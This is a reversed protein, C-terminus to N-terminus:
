GTWQDKPSLFQLVQILAQAQQATDDHLLCM